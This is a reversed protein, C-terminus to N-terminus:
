LWNIVKLGQIRDFHKINNTVFICKHELSISGILLDADDITKGHSELESKIKGYLLASHATLYIIEITNSITNILEINDQMRRSKYAGYYLECLTIITIGVHAIGVRLINKEIATNGKLWYICTDTDLIYKIM